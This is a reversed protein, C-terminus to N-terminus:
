SHLAGDRDLLEFSRSLHHRAVGLDTLVTVPDVWNLRSCLSRMDAGLGDAAEYEADIGLSLANSTYEILEDNLVRYLESLKYADTGSDLMSNRLEHLLVWSDHQALGHSRRFMEDVAEVAQEYRSAAVNFMDGAVELVDARAGTELDYVNVARRQEVCDALSEWVNVRLIARAQELESQAGRTLAATEADDIDGDPVSLDDIM